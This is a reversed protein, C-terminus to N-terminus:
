RAAVLHQVYNVLFVVSLVDLKEYLGRVFTSVM